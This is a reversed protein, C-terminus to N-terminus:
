GVKRAANDDSLRKPPLSVVPCKRDAQQRRLAEVISDVDDGHERAIAERIARVEDVISDAAM